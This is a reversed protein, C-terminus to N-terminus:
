DEHIKRAEDLVIRVARVLEDGHIPKYLFKKIGMTLAEEESIVASHGTCIIIPMEPAIKLAASALESGTLDPMTQDTIILDFQTPDAQVKKLAERSDTIGTVRYDYDELIRQNIRVLLLDDDVVLIRETGIPVAGEKQPREPTSSKEEVVPIHVHFTCGHGPHSEVQIFGKYETVIGHVVALGLGTGKGRVKTTFYPEFIRATTEQSMGQGTDSVSLVIFPAPSLSDEQGDAAKKQQRSLTVRLTGKEDELAHAGNTCLNLVIQHIKTPDALITGCGPDIDEELEITTPLTARLLQLAEHVIQAPQLPQLHQETKRSFDLIQQVLTTARRGSTIVQDIDKRATAEAQLNRKALEAFGLIAALINNFDHAIGGALTGLADMKQAQILDDEMKKQETIDRAIHILYQLAGEQDPIEASSVQFIKGLKEHIITCSHTDRNHITESLPCGPCPISTGRFLEYCYRNNLEGPAAQFLHHAAKNARIIRMEKDMITIIDPLADFTKAWEDRSRALEQEAQLRKTIDHITACVIERDDIVLTGSHIEVERLEGNKLLHQLHFEEKGKRQIQILNEMIKEPALVNIDALTMGPWETSDYGYFACAAPNAALIDSTRPDILLMVNPNENFLTAYRAESKQLALEAKKRATIDVGCELAGILKGTSDKVPSSTVEIYRDGIQREYRYKQGDAVTYQIKCADCIKARGKRDPDKSYQGWTDYCYRGEVQESQWGILEEMFSNIKIVRMELDVYSVYYPANNLIAEHEAITTKLSDHLKQERSLDKIINIIRFVEGKEDKLPSASIQLFRKSGDALTHSHSVSFPSGTTFVQRHVCQQDPFGHGSCPFPSHHLIAHCKQGIIEARTTACLDCFHENAFVITYDQDIILVCDSIHNLVAYQDPPSM